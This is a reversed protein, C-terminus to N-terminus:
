IVYCRVEGVKLTELKPQAGIAVRPIAFSVDVDLDCGAGAGGTAFHVTADVRSMDSRKVRVNSLLRHPHAGFSEVTMDMFGTKAKARKLADSLNMGEYSARGAAIASLAESAAWAARLGDPSAGEVGFWREHISEAECLKQRTEQSVDPSMASSPLFRFRASLDFRRPAGTREQEYLVLVPMSCAPPSGFAVQAEGFYEVYSPGSPMVANPRTARFVKGLEARDRELNSPAQAGANSLMLAACVSLLALVRM